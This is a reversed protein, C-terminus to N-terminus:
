PAPNLVREARASPNRTRRVVRKWWLVFGSVFLLTPAFSVVIWAWNALTGSGFRAFHVSRFFRLIATPREMDTLDRDFLDILPDLARPFGLQFGSVGWALMLLLTWFGVFGHLQWLVPRPSGRHYPLLGEHWRARGQWWLVIGTLSMLVFLLGGVGNITRGTRELFLDDHLNALWEVAKIPWPNAVGIDEGTYHNFYHPFYEGGRNLVVYYARGEQYPPSTFGIEYGEYVEAMRAQLTADDLPVADAPPLPDLDKPEFAAYFPSKLLLASGSLSIALVYLGLGIGAWLHVQFLFRRFGLTQPAQLWRQWANM